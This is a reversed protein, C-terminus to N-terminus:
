RCILLRINAGDDMWMGMCSGNYWGTKATNNYSVNQSLTLNTANIGAAFNVHTSNQSVFNSPALKGSADFMTLNGGSSYTVNSANITANQIVNSAEKHVITANNLSTFNTQLSYILPLAIPDSEQILVTSAPMELRSLTTNSLYTTLEPALGAGTINALLQVTIRNTANIGTENIYFHLTNETQAGTLEDSQETISLLTDGGAGRLYIKAYVRLTRAGAIKALHLHVNGIGTQLHDPLPMNAPTTWNVITQGDTLSANSFPESANAWNSTLNMALFPPIDSTINYFYIDMTGMGYRADFFSLNASINTTNGSTSVLMSGDPSQIVKITSLNLANLSDNLATINKNLLSINGFCTNNVWTVNGFNQSFNGLQSLNLATINLYVLFYTGNATNNLILMNSNLSNIQLQQNSDNVINANITFNASNNASDFSTKNAYWLNTQSVDIYATGTGTINSGASSGLGTGIGVNSVSGAGAPVACSSAATTNALTTIFSGAGCTITAGKTDNLRSVNQGLEADTSNLASIRLDRQTDNNINQSLTSNTNSANHILEEGGSINSFHIQGINSMWPVRSLVSGNNLNWSLTSAGGGSNAIYLRWYIRGYDLSCDNTGSSGTLTGNWGVMINSSGNNISENENCLISGGVSDTYIYSELSGNIPANNTRNFINTSQDSMIIPFSAFSISALFALILIANLKM